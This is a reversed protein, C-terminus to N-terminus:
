RTRSPAAATKPEAFTDLLATLKEAPLYGQAAGLGRGAPSLVVTTPFARIQLTKVAEPDTSANIRLPTFGGRIRGAVGADAWTDHEMKRCYRCGESTVYVVLPKGTVAASDLAQQVDNLWVIPEAQKEKEGWGFPWAAEAGLAVCLLAVALLARVPLSM